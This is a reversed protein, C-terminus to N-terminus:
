GVPRIHDVPVICEICLNESNRKLELGDVVIELISGGHEEAFKRAEDETEHLHIQQGRQTYYERCKEESWVEHWMESARRMLLAITEENWPYMEAFAKLDEGEVWDQTVHYALM